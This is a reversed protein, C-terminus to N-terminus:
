KTGTVPCESKRATRLAELERTGQQWYALEEERTMNRIEEQVREAGERKMRVCDFRKATKM